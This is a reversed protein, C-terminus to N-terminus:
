CFWVKSEFLTSGKKLFPHWRRHLQLLKWVTFEVFFVALMKKMNENKKQVTKIGIFTACDIHCFKQDLNPHTFLFFDECKMPNLSVKETFQYGGIDCLLCFMIPSANLFNSLVPSPWIVMSSKFYLWNKVRVKKKKEKMM